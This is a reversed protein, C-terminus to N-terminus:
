PSPVAVNCLPPPPPLLERLFRLDMPAIWLSESSGRSDPSKQVGVEFTSGDTLQFKAYGDPGTVIIQKPEVVDGMLTSFMEPGDNM